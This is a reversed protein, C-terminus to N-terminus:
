SIPNKLPIGIAINLTLYSKRVTVRFLCLFDPIVQKNNNAKKLALSNLFLKEKVVNLEENQRQFCFWRLIRACCLRMTNKLHLFGGVMFTQEFVCLWNLKCSDGSQSRPKIRILCPYLSHLNIPSCCLSKGM